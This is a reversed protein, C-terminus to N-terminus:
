SWGEPDLPVDLREVATAQGSWEDLDVCLGCLRAEDRAVEFRSPMGTLFKRLVADVDMGIISRYPGTMGLDSQYATGRPLIRTDATPVHTHTGVLVSVRGDAYEGLAQKESTAEAHFDVLFLDAEDELEELKRDLARFPSDVPNMFVQGLLSIVGVRIEGAEVIVHRRGPAGPAANAPCALLAEGTLYEDSGKKDWIHNGGTMVDVGAGVIERGISETLGFGAAANEVNCVVLDPRREERVRPLLERLAVRGPRGVIDGILLIRM